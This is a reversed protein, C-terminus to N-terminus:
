RSRRPAPRTNAGCLVRTPPVIVILGEALEKLAVVMPSLNCAFPIRVAYYFVASVLCAHMLRRPRAGAVPVLPVLSLLYWTQLYPHLYLYYISLGVALAALPQHRQAIEFLMLAAAVRFMLGLTFAAMPWSLVVRLLSRPLCEVSRTCHDLPATADGILRALETTAGLRDHFLGLLAVGAIAALTAAVRLRRQQRLGPWRRLLAAGGTLALALVASAKVAVGAALALLAGRLRRRRLLLVAAAITLALLADNHGNATAEVIAVPCFLVEAAAQARRAPSVAAAVLAAAAFLAAAAVLQYGRLASPLSPAVRALVAALTNFWPGYTSGIRLGDPLRALLEDGAALTQTLPLHADAGANVARGIAAYYITDLSLFPPSLLALGHVLAALLFVAGLPLSERAMRRWGVGLLAMATAWTVALALGEALAPWARCDDGVRDIRLRAAVLALLAAGALSPAISTLAGSPRPAFSKHGPASLENAPPPGTGEGRYDPAYMQM